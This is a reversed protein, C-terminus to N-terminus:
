VTEKNRKKDMITVLEEFTVFEYGESQLMKIIAIIKKPYTKLGHTLYYKDYAALGKFHPIKERSLEFPHLYFVYYDNNQIYKQLVPKLVPWHILRSYGGGCIPMLYGAIRQCVLGFEYFGGKSFVGTLSSVFNSLDLRGVHRASSCSNHSADYKFGANKLIELQNNNLSFFPARFGKITVGFMDELKKKAKVINKEFDKNNMDLPATHDYGHLALKHGRKIYEAISDKIQEAASCVSFMTAKIGFKELLNIYEDLGDLMNNEPINNSYSICETDSFSEVDITFVAYKKKASGM